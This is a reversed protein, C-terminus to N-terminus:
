FKVLTVIPRSVIRSKARDGEQPIIDYITDIQNKQDRESSLKGLLITSDTTEITETRGGFFEKSTKPLEKVEPDLPCEWKLQSQM